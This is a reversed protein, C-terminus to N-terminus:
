PAGNEDGEAPDGDGNCDHGGGKPADDVDADYPELYWRTAADDPETGADTDPM